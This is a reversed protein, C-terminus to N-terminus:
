IANADRLVNKFSLWLHQFWLHPISFQLYAMLKNQKFFDLQYLFEKPSPLPFSHKILMVCPLSNDLLIHLFKFSCCLFCHRRFFLVNFALLCYSILLVITFLFLISYAIKFLANNFYYLMSSKIFLFYVWMDLISSVEFLQYNM